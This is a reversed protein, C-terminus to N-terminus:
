LKKNHFIEFQLFYFYVSYYLIITYNDYLLIIVGVEGQKLLLSSVALRTEGVDEGRYCKIASRVYIVEDKFVQTYIELYCSKLVFFYGCSFFLYNKQIM